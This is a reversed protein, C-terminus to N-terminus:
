NEQESIEDFKKDGLLHQRWKQFLTQMVNYQPQVGYNQLHELYTDLAYFIIFRVKRQKVDHNRWNQMLESAEMRTLGIISHLESADPHLPSISQEQLLWQLANEIASIEESTFLKKLVKQLKM